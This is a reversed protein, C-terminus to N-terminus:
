DLGHVLPKMPESRLQLQEIRKVYENQFLKLLRQHCHSRTSPTFLLREIQLATLLKHQYLALLIQEDKRTPDIRPRDERRARTYPTLRHRAAVTYMTKRRRNHRKVKGAQMQERVM